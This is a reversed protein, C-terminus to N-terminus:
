QATALLNSISIVESSDVRIYRLSSDSRWRGTYRILHDPVGVIAATTAAGIRFSHSSYDMASPVGCAPLLTWHHHTVYQWTLSAGNQFLFLSGATDRCLQCYQKVLGGPCIAKDTSTGVKVTAGNGAQDTKSSRLFRGRNYNRCIPKNNHM